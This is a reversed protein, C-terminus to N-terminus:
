NPSPSFNGEELFLGAEAEINYLDQLKENYEADPIFLTEGCFPDFEVHGTMRGMKPLSPHTFTGRVLPASKNDMTLTYRERSSNQM